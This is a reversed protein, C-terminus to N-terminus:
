GLRYQWCRFAKDTNTQMKKLAIKKKEAKTM